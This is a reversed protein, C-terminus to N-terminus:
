GATHIVRQPFPIEIGASDLAKKTQETNNFFITRYHEPLCYSRMILNVSSDALESVHVSPAPDTLINEQKTIMDLLTKRAVDIDASYAIGVNVDVRISDKTSYNIINDNIIPGNPVIATNNQLTTITTTFVGIESVRGKTWQTEIVDGVTYPKFLLILVWGAFNSLSGQLSLGIALGAAGILAIFSTTQIGFMGAVSILLLIKLAISVLSALFKSVTLDIHGWELWRKTFKTIYKIVRMGLWLTLLAGVVKPARALVWEVSLDVYSQIMEPTLDM